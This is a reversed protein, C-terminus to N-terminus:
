GTARATAAPPVVRPALWLSQYLVLASLATVAGWGVTQLARRAWVGAASPEPDDPVAPRSRSEAPVSGIRGIVIPVTAASAAPSPAPAGADTDGGFFDWEGPEGLEERAAPAPKSPSPAPEPDGLGLGDLADAVPDAAVPPAGPAPEPAVPVAPAEPGPSPEPEPEPRDDLLADIGREVAGPRTDFLDEEDDDLGGLLGDVAEAAADSSAPPPTTPDAGADPQTQADDAPDPDGALDLGSSSLPDATPDTVDALDPTPDDEEEGLSLGPAEQFSDLDEAGAGDEETNFEWDSEEFEDIAAQASQTDPSRLGIGSDGPSSMEQTQVDDEALARDVANEVREENRAEPKVFFAHRCKSCRVKAGKAPIRADDLKFRTTCEECTIIM